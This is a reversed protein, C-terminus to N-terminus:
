KSGKIKIDRYCVADGHDQLLIHGPVKTGFAGVDKFKSAKVAQLIEPSGLEYDLVKIGNLWHEVHNGSVVIRSDNWSGPPLAPHTTAPKVDYFSATRRNNEKADEHREDDIVQYEHGLAGGLAAGGKGRVAPDESVFYKVGSNSGPEVKWSFKLEFDAYTGTTILDREGKTDASDAPPLGICGDHVVWRLGKADPKLYGRWGSMTKGDFLLTWGAAKEAPTLTNRDPEAAVATGATGTLLTTLFLAIHARM